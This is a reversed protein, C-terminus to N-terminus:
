AGGGSLERSPSHASVELLMARVLMSRSSCDVAAYIQKLHYRVTNVSTSLAGAIEDNTFGRAVLQAVRLKAPTLEDLHFNSM